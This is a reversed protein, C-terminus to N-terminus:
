VGKFWGVIAGSDNQIDQTHSQYWDNPLKREIKSAIERLLNAVAQREGFSAPPQDIGSANGNGRLRITLSFIEQPPYGM